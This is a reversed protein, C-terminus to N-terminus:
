LLGIYERFDDADKPSLWGRKWAVSFFQKNRGHRVSQTRWGHYLKDMGKLDVHPYKAQTEQLIDALIWVKEKM